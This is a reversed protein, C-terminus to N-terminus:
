FVVVPGANIQPLLGASGVGPEIFPWNAGSWGGVAANINFGFNNNFMLDAGARARAGVAWDGGIEDRYYQVLIVDAGFYPHAIGLDLKYAGGINMPYIANWETFKGTAATVEPPLTRQVAYAEIGVLAVLGTSGINVGVEGGITIFDFEYYNAYGGRMAISVHQPSADSRDIVQEDLMGAAADAQRNNKRPPAAAVPTNNQQAFQTASQTAVAAPAPALPPTPSGFQIMEDIDEVSIDDATGGFSIMAADDETATAVQAAAAAQAAATDAARQAAAAMDAAQQAAVAQAAAAQAAAAQAAAAQAAAAQQAALAAAAAAQQAAVENMDMDMLGDVEDNYGEEEEFAFDGEEDDASFDAAGAAVTSAANPDEGSLLENLIPTMADAMSSPDSPITWAKRRVIKNAGSDYLVLDISLNTGEPAIAGTVLWDTGAAKTITGLCSTSNLCNNTLSAPKAELDTVGDVASMFDLESSILQHAGLVTKADAGNNVPPSVAVTAAQAVTSLGLLILVSTNRLSFM